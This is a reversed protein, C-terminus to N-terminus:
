QDGPEITMLQVYREILPVSRRVEGFTGSASVQGQEIVFVTDAHQVTSLRHAIVIVTTDGRLGELTSSIDAETEADLASTAEDLVLLQPKTFLARALGLRQIQGGSLANNQKGLSSHIGDPLATVHELLGAQLLAREVESSDIDEDNVGLAVNQAISGSVMGPQQPVYAISGPRTERVIRPSYGGVLVSGALPDHIGLLLDALTSKGAGSPGVFAVFSGPEVELTIGNLVPEDGDPFQFQADRVAVGLGAKEHPPRPLSQGSDGETYQAQQDRAKEILEHARAAQPGHIRIEAVANQLPLMAAMMRTGGALFVGTIVLGESLTGRAFQWMILAMIGVLLASEIFFRPLGQVFRQLGSDLAVQRRAMDFKALFHGRKELVSAERFATVLDFISNTVFVNNTAMREGLRRIRQNIALQFLGLLMAFYLTILVASSVDVFLFGVFIAVFLAAETVLVSGSFLMSSFAILSSQTVAWQLDGRSLPKFRSLDGEFLYHAVESSADAEVRSLFLTTIRLLVSGIASKLLFFGAIVATVWLYSESNEIPVTIGFFEAENRATLGSALMAGLLGVAALGLVDLGHVVIRAALILLFIRRRPRSLLRFSRLVPRFM